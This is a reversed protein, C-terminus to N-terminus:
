PEPAARGLAFFYHKMSMLSDFTLIIRFVFMVQSHAFNCNTGRPCNGSTSINNCMVTKYKGGAGVTPGGAGLAPGGGPGPMFGGPGPPRPMGMPGMGPAGPRRLEMPSHAFNCSAAKPCPRQAMVNSCMM